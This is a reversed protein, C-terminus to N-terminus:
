ESLSIMIKKKFPFEKKKERARKLDKSKKGDPLFYQLCTINSGNYKSTYTIRHRLTFRLYKYLFILYVSYVPFIDLVQSNWYSMSILM